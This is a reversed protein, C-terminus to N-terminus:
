EDLVEIVTIPPIRGSENVLVSIKLIDDDFRVPVDFEFTAKVAHGNAPENGATFTVVGTSYSVTYHTTETKQVDNVYIILTSQVPLINTRVYSRAGSTYTKKLPFTDESGDGTGITENTAQFDGWDKFRFPFLRGNRALYFTKVAQLDDLDRIGYSIDWEGRCSDWEGLRYEHGSLSQQVTTKFRPGGVAGEEVSEPLRVQDVM